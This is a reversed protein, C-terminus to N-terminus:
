LKGQQSQLVTVINGMVRTSRFIFNADEQIFSIRFYFQLSIDSFEELDFRSREDSRHRM